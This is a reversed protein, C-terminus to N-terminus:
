HSCERRATQFASEWNLHGSGVSGAAPQRNQVITSFDAAHSMVIGICNQTEDDVVLCLM